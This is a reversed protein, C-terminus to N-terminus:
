YSEPLTIMFTHGTDFTAFDNKLYHSTVQLQDASRRVSLYHFLPKYDASLDSLMKKSIDLPQHLGGGGGIVLFDKDQLKFHEFAHSHGTIFLVGKKSNIFPLVFLKQVLLSSGVVLSNTYPAHHCAVIIGKIDKSSDLKNLASKYWENAKKLDDSSLKKFNSNLLVIALSDIISVYGTRINQPFRKNFNREGKRPRVILDHNGLLGFVSINKKRCSDLFADVKKWKRNKFGLSVIDGLMYVNQPRNRLIESFLLGTATTNHNSHLLIKEVSMPQQTDSIFNIQIGATDPFAATQSEAVLSASLILSVIIFPKIM